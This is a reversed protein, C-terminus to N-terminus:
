KSFHEFGKAELKETVGHRQLRLGQRKEIVGIQTCNIQILDIKDAPVTFCLEYDEGAVLPMMWDGTEEIYDKVEATLPMKSWDLTAGVASKQLIHKLDSALGDSLDICSSAYERIALGEEVRPEPQNFRMLANEPTACDFGSNIKLGLGADGLYGTVFVLDDAKATSRKIAQGKPVLGHAQITLTLPGATTDGGILDVAFQTALKHLGTSFGKLWAENVEPLTLALTVSVPKAGMAALDSLNVALLKYGLQEPKVSPFFHINEVMTDMTIALEYGEPVSMLACDDGIGLLNVPKNKLPKSFYAQILGFESVSM